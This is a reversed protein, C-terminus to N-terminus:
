VHVATLGGSPECKVEVIAPLGELDAKCSLQTSPGQLAGLRHSANWVSAGMSSGRVRKLAAQCRPTSGVCRLRRALCGCGCSSAAVIGWLTLLVTPVGVPPGVGLAIKDSQSLGCQVCSSFGPPTYYGDPCGGCVDGGLDAYGAACQCQWSTANFAYHQSDPCCGPQFGPAQTFVWSADNCACQGKGADYHGNWFCCSSNQMSAPKSPAARPSLRNFWACVCRTTNTCLADGRSAGAGLWTGVPEQSDSGHDYCVSWQCEGPACLRRWM